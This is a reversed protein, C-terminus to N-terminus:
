SRRSCRRSGGRTSRSAGSRRIGYTRDVDAKQPFLYAYDSLMKTFKNVVKITMRERFAEKSDVDPGMGLFRMMQRGSSSSGGMILHSKLVLNREFEEKVWDVYDNILNFMSVILHVTERSM